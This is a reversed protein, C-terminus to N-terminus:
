NEDPLNTLPIILHRWWAEAHRFSHCADGLGILICVCVADPDAQLDYLCSHYQISWQSPCLPRHPPWTM